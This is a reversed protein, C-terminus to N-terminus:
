FLGACRLKARIRRHVLALKAIDSLTRCVFLLCTGKEHRSHGFFPNRNAPNESLSLTTRLRSRRRSFRTQQISEASAPLGLFAQM